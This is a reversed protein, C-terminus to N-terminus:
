LHLRQGQLAPLGDGEFRLGDLPWYLLHLLEEGGQGAGREGNGRGSGRLSHEPIHLEKVEYMHMIYMYMYM